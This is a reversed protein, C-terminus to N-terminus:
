GAPTANSKERSPRGTLNFHRFLTWPRRVGRPAPFTSSALRKSPFLTLTWVTDGMFHFSIEDEASLDLQSLAGTAYMAGITAWDVIHLQSDLLYIRLTDEHLIDDTVLLLLFDQWKLATELVAGIVAKGTPKGAM